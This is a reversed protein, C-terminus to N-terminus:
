LWSQAKSSEAALKVFGDYDVLSIGSILSEPDIGRAELDPQLAYIQQDSMAAELMTAAHGGKRAAYVGDELLLIAAGKQSLRLCTELSNREYPSKNILHLVSM